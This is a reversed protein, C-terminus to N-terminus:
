VSGARRRELPEIHDTVTHGIGVNPTTIVLATCPRLPAAKLDSSGHEEGRM